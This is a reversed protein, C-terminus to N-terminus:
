KSSTLPALYISSGTRLFQHLTVKADKDADAINIRLDEVSFFDPKRSDSSTVLPFRFCQEKKQSEMLGQMVLTCQSHSIVGENREDLLSFIEELASIFDRYMTCTLIAVSFFQFPVHDNERRDFKRLLTDSAQPSFDSCLMGLLQVYDSGSVGVIDSNYLRTKMNQYSSWLVDWFQKHAHNLLTIDRWAKTVPSVGQVEERFFQEIYQLPNSPKRTMLDDLLNTLLSSLGTRELFEKNTAM